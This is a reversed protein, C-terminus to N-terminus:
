RMGICRRSGKSFSVLYRELRKRKEEGLWREPVYSYSDPFISEDHHQLISTMGIAAAPRRPYMIVPEDNVRIECAQITTKTGVLYPLQELERLKIERDPNPEIGELEQRLRQTKSPDRLIHYVTVTLANSTTETGAGIASRIEEALREPTKEDDPLKSDLIQDILTYGRESCANGKEAMDRQQEVEAIRQYTRQVLSFFLVLGPNLAEAWARPLSKLIPLMWTVQRSMMGLESADRLTQGWHPNWDTAELFRYSRKLVFSTILDTTLCTFGLSLPVIQSTKGFGEIRDCFKRVLEQVLGEHQLVKGRSFFPNMAGRRFRHVQASETGFSSRPFDFPKVYYYYKDKPSSHSYLTSYYEPDNIHLEYPSIRIIPGYKQHLDKIKFTYQGKLIVDYYFEYWLTAAALKPGPFRALPSFYLRYVVVGVVYAIALICAMTLVKVMDMVM